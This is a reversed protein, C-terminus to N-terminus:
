KPYRGQIDIRKAAAAVMLDAAEQVQGLQQKVMSEIVLPDVEQSYALRRAENIASEPIVVDQIDTDIEPVADLWVCTEGYQAHHDHFRQENTDYFLGDFKGNARFVVLM